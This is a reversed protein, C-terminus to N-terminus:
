APLKGKRLDDEQYESCADRLHAGDHEENNGRMMDFVTLTRLRKM